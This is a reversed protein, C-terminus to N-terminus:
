LTALVLFRGTDGNDRRHSFFREDTFTNVGFEDVSEVGAEALQDVLALKVDLYQAGDRSVIYRQDFHKSVEPGFEYTDVTHHPGIVAKINASDVGYEERMGEILKPVINAAAGRWGAHALGVVGDAESVLLVVACDAVSIGIVVDAKNTMIADYGNFDLGRAAESVALIRDSHELGDLFALNEPKLKLAALARKRNEAVNKADDGVRTTVNLSDYPAKSVGGLRTFYGHRFGITDSQLYEVKENALILSKRTFM